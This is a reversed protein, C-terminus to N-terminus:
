QSVAARIQYVDDKVIARQVLSHGATQLREILTTGSKDTAVTRTDSVTLVAINIPQQPTNASTM